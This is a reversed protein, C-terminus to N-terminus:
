AVPERVASVEDDAVVDVIRYQPRTVAAGRELAETDAVAAVEFQGEADRHSDAEIDIESYVIRVYTIRFMRRM